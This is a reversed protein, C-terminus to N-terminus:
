ARSSPEPRRRRPMMPKPSPLGPRDCAVFAGITSSPSSHRPCISRIANLVPVVDGDRRVTDIVDILAKFGADPDAEWIPDGEPHLLEALVEGSLGDGDQSRAIANRKALLIAASDAVLPYVRRARRWIYDAPLAVPLLQTTARPRRGPPRSPVLLRLRGRDFAGASCSRTRGPAGQPVRGRASRGPGRRHGRLGSSARVVPDEGREAAEVLHRVADVALRVWDLCDRRTTGSRQMPSARGGPTSRSIPTSCSRCTRRSARPFSSTSPTPPAERGGTTM